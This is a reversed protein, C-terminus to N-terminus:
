ANAVPERNTPGPSVLRSSVFRSLWRCQLHGAAKLWSSCEALQFRWGSVPRVWPRYGSRARRSNAPGPATQRSLSRPPRSPSRWLLQRWLLRSRQLLPSRRLWRGAHRLRGLAFCVPQCARTDEEHARSGSGNRNTAPCHLRQRWSAVPHKAGPDDFPLGGRCTSPTLDGNARGRLLRCPAARTPTRGKFSIM